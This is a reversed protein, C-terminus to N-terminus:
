TSPGHVANTVTSVSDATKEEPACQAATGGKERPSNKEDEPEQECSASRTPNRGRGERRQGGQSASGGPQELILLGYNLFLTGNERVALLGERSPHAGTFSGKSHVFLKSEIL